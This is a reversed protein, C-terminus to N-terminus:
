AGVITPTFISDMESRTRSIRQDGDDTGSLWIEPVVQALSNVNELVYDAEKTKVTKGVKM